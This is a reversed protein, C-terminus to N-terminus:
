EAGVTHLDGTLSLRRAAPRLRRRLETEDVLHGLFDDVGADIAWDEHSQDADRGEMLIVHVYPLTPDTRLRRCLDIWEFKPLRGDAIVTRIEMEGLRSLAADSDNEAFTEHGLRALARELPRRSGPSGFGFILIRM